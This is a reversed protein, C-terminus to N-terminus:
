NYCYLISNILVQLTKGLGMAHSIICGYGDNSQLSAVSEVVNDYLFRIGGIQHAMIKEAITQALYIDPESEEHGVNVLVRGSDDVCNITDNKHQIWNNDDFGIDIDNLFSNDILGSKQLRKILREIRQTERKRAEIMRTNSM